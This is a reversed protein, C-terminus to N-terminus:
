LQTLNLTLTLTPIQQSFDHQSSVQKRFGSAMIEALMWVSFGSSGTVYSAINLYTTTIPYTYDLGVVVLDVAVLGIYM